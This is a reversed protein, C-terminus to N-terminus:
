GARRDPRSVETIARGPAVPVAFSGIVPEEIAIYDRAQMRLGEHRTNAGFILEERETLGLDFVTELHYLRGFPPVVGPECDTFIGVLEEPTALRVDSSAVGLVESLRGLDIRSTSALVVMVFRGAVTFLVTKAVYRGPVHMSEARKTASSAPRHILVEFRVQRTMLFDITYM